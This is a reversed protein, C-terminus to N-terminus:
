TVIKESRRSFSAFEVVYFRKINDIPTAGSIVIDGESSILFKSSEAQNLGQSIIDSTLSRSISFKNFNARDFKLFNEIDLDIVLSTTECSRM